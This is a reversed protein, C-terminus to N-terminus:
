FRIALGLGSPNVGLKINYGTEKRPTLIDQNYANVAKSINHNISGAMPISIAVLGGGIIAMTWNPKGGGIATGVPYGILFGGCYAIINVFGATGKAKKFYLMATENNHIVGQLRDASIEEGRYSYKYGGGTKSVMITDTANSQVTMPANNGAPANAVPPEDFSAVKYISV